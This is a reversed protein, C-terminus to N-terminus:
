LAALSVLLWDSCSVDSHVVAWEPVVVSRRERERDRRIERRLFSLSGMPLVSGQERISDLPPQTLGQNYISYVPKYIGKYLPDSLATNLSNSESGVTRPEIGGM